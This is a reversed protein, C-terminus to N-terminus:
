LLGFKKLRRYLTTRAIGLQRSVESLNGNSDALLRMLKELEGKQKSTTENHVTELAPQDRNNRKHYYNEYDNQITSPLDEIYIINDQYFLMAHTFVNELERVNGPWTYINSLFQLLNEDIKPIQVHSAASLQRLMYSIFLPIDERRNRLPPIAVNVVSIRYYLDARFLGREILEEIDRNTAAIIRVDVPIPKATGLHVVEKEQIVRLLYVQFEPSMEEIEDLFLTGGNADEFKGKRGNKAAGTFTGGEFGFLESALLDKPVAGCNIAVFPANRRPSSNHIARAFREKGTGSEGQLLIPVDTKSAIDCRKIASRILDSQGILSSWVGSSHSTISKANNGTPRVILIFGICRNAYHVERVSAKMCIQNITIDSEQEQGEPSKLKLLFDHFESDAWADFLEKGTHELVIQRARQSAEIIHFAVDVAIVGDGPYRHISHVFEELISYHFKMSQELLRNQITQAAMVTMGLTHSQANKWLGTVDIVGLTEHTIPDHIPTSACVWNHVGECFHEAAFVQVPKQLALSTGIANTGITKESWDAGQVFNMQEASQLTKQNGDVLLIRGKNDALTVLHNTDKVHRSLDHLIPVAHDYLYSLQLIEKIEDNELLIETKDRSPNVGTNICRQWSDHIFSRATTHNHHPNNLFDIWNRETIMRQTTLSCPMDDIAQRRQM